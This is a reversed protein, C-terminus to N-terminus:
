PHCHPLTHSWGHAYTWKRASYVTIIQAICQSSQLLRLLRKGNSDSTDDVHINFDHCLVIPCRHTALVDLVVTLYKFFESTAAVSGPRYVSLVLVHHNAVTVYESMYEFSVIRLKLDTKTVRVDDHPILALGGHNIFNAGEDVFYVVHLM